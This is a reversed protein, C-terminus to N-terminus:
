TKMALLPVVRFLKGTQIRLKEAHFDDCDGVLFTSHTFGSGSQIEGRSQRQATL